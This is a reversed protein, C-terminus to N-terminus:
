EIVSLLKQRNEPRLDSLLKHRIEQPFSIIFEVTSRQLGGISLLDIAAMMRAKDRWMEDELQRRRSPSIEGIRRKLDRALKYFFLYERAKSKFAKKASKLEAETKKVIERRWWRRRDLDLQKKLESIKAAQTRFGDHRVSLERLTQKYRAWDNGQAGIIFNEIQFQSHEPRFDALLKEVKDSIIM